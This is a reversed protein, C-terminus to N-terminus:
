VLFLVVELFLVEGKWALIPENPFNFKVVGTRCDIFVFFYHLFDIGLIVDFVVMYIEVLEVHPVRNPFMIPYYRYIKKGGDSGGVAITVMYPENLIDLFIDFKRAVLPTVYM